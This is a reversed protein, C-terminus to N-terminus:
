RVVGWHPCGHYCTCRGTSIWARALNQPAHCGHLTMFVDTIRKKLDDIGILPSQCLTNKVYDWMFFGLSTLDPSRPPWHLRGERSIWKDSIERGPVGTSTFGLSPSRRRTASYHITTPALYSTSCLTASDGPLYGCQNNSRPLLFHMLGCCVNLKPSNRMHEKVVHPNETGWIRVSHRHIKGSVRFTAM